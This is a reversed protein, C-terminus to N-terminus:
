EGIRNVIARLFDIEDFIANAKQIITELENFNLNKLGNDFDFNYFNNHYMLHIRRASKAIEAAKDPYLSVHLGVYECFKNEFEELSSFSRVLNGDAGLNM